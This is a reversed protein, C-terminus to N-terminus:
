CYLLWDNKAMLKSASNILSKNQQNLTSQWLVLFLGEYLLGCGERGMFTMEKYVCLWQTGSTPQWSNAEVDLWAQVSCTCHSAPLILIHSKYLIVMAPQSSVVKIICYVCLICVRAVHVHVELAHLSYTVKIRKAARDYPTLDEDEDEEEESSSDSDDDETDESEVQDNKDDTPSPVVELPLDSTVPSPPM